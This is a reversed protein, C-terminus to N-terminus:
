AHDAVMERAYEQNMTDELLELLSTSSSIIQEAQNKVQTDSDHNEGNEDMRLMDDLQEKYLM